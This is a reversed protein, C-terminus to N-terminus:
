KGETILRLSDHHAINKMVLMCAFVCLKYKNMKFLSEALRYACKSSTEFQTDQMM